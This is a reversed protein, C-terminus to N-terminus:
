AFVLYCGVLVAVLAIALVRVDFLGTFPQERLVAAPSQWCYRRVQEETPPPTILSVGAFLISCIAFLIFAQLM